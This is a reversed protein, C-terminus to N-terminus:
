EKDAEAIAMGIGDIAAKRDTIFQHCDRVRLMARALVEFRLAMREAVKLPDCRQDCFELDKDLASM